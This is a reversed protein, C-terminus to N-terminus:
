GVIPKTMSYVRYLSDPAAKAGTDFALTGAAVYDTPRGRRSVAAVGGPLRKSAVYGDLMAQLAPYAAAGAAFARSGIGPAALAALGAVVGRRSASIMGGEGKQQGREAGPRHLRRAESVRRTPMSRQM